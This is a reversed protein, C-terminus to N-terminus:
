VFCAPSYSKGKSEKKLVVHLIRDRVEARERLYLM